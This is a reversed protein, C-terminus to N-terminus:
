SLCTSHKWKEMENTLMIFNCCVVCFSCLPRFSHCGKWQVVSEKIYKPFFFISIEIFNTEIRIYNAFLWWQKLYYNPGSCAMVLCKTLMKIIGLCFPRWKASSMKLQFKKFPFIHIEILVDSFKTGIPGIPLRGDNTWTIAQHWGPSLGNDSRIIILKDVCKYTVRGWHISDLIVTTM